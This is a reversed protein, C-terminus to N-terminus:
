GRRRRRRRRPAGEKLRKDEEDRGRRKMLHADGNVRLVVGGDAEV